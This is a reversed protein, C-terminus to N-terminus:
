HNIYYALIISADEIPLQHVFLAISGLVHVVDPKLLAHSIFNNSVCSRLILLATELPSFMSIAM